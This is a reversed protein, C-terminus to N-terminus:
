GLKLAKHQANKIACNHGTKAFKTVYTWDKTIM